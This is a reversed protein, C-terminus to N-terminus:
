SEGTDGIDVLLFLLRFHKWATVPFNLANCRFGGLKETEAWFRIVAVPPTCIPSPHSPRAVNCTSLPCSSVCWGASVLIQGKCKMWIKVGKIVYGAFMAALSWECIRYDFILKGVLAHM